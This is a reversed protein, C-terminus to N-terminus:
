FSYGLRVGVRRGDGIQGLSGLAPLGAVTLVSSDIYSEYYEEELLNNAFVALEVQDIRYTISANTLIYADLLPSFTESLSSGVRNGKGVFGGSFTLDGDGVPVVYDTQLNFTWDPLFPIRDSPLQRGTVDVYRSDDTIRARQLMGGGHVSWADTIELNFEAEVGYTEVDGTNLNIGVFGGGPVTSPALSNQGIFDRYDNYFAAAQLTFRRDGSSLKTGVEYTWVSDGDYTPNPAGPGNTGGGRFGRAISGYIMTNDDIRKRLAVRPQWEEAEYQSNVASQFDVKQSDYRLGVTLELDPQIDWFATGFVAWIDADSNAFASVTPNGPVFMLTNSSVQDNTQNSGFFGILTSFTDSWETDFRLEASKTELEGSNTSFFLNIPQFDGDSSGVNERKDYSLLATMDTNTSVPMDLKVNVGTYDYEAESRFNTQADNRYDRPGTTLAYLPGTGDVSDAYANLTVIADGPAIWRLSGRVTDQKLRNADDYGLLSNVIFGDRSQTGASIRGQLVGPIIPGSVTGGVIYFDDPDAYTATVRGEIDDTPQKTTVNIAGGLTNQGFLTSQPGRLVEIQEVALTPSNLYSTNAQYVGDVFIGVGPQVNDLLTTGIGRISIFARGAADSNINLGPTVAAIDRISTFQREELTESTVATVAVPVDALRESRKRATVIVEDITTADEAQPDVSQASVTGAASLATLATACLLLAKGFRM